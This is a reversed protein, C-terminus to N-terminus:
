SSLAKLFGLYAGFSSFMTAWVWKWQLMYFTVITRVIKATWHYDTEYEHIVNLGGYTDPEDKNLQVRKGKYWNKIIKM